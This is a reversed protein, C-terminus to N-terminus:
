FPLHQISQSMSLGLYSPPIYAGIQRLETTLLQKPCAVDSGLYPYTMAPNNCSWILIENGRRSDLSERLNNNTM